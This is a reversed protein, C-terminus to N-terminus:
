KTVQQSVPHPSPIPRPSLDEDEVGSDHDSASLKSPSCGEPPSFGVYILSFINQKDSKAATVLIKM